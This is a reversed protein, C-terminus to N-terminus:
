AHAHATPRQTISTGDLGLRNKNCGDQTITNAPTQAAKCTPLNGGARGTKCAVKSILKTCALKKSEAKCIAPIVKPNATPRAASPMPKRRLMNIPKAKNANALVQPPKTDVADLINHNRVSSPTPNKNTTIGAGANIRRVTVACCSLVRM